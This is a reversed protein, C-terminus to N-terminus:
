TWGQCPADVKVWSAARATARTDGSFKQGNERATPQDVLGNIDVCRRVINKDKLQEFILALIKVDWSRSQCGNLDALLECLERGVM